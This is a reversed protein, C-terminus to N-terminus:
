KSPAPGYKVSCGYPDAQTKAVKKGALTEGLAADVFNTREANQGRPDDDIGGSYVIVGDKGIVFMHPTTKAGYLRGVTGLEDILVPYDMRYAKRAQANREVGHGQQGPAGSNIALWVVGKDRYKKETDIM